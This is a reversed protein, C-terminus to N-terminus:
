CLETRAVVKEYVEVHGAVMRELTFKEEVRRRCTRRDIEGVRGMVEAIEKATSAILGSVGDEVIEPTAGASSGIVPVGCALAEITVIGFPEDFVSPVVLAKARRLFELKEEGRLYGVYEVSEGLEPEIARTWYDDATGGYHKGAIKLKVGTKKAAEVALHVGKPEIIRGLYAFYDGSEESFEYKDLDVGHYVNGVWNMEEPATRRQALSMSIYNLHQYRAFVSKYKILFNFPDHHTFVVPKECLGAFQLAIDEENTYIHVLDFEGANARQYVDSILEAQVQRAMGVFVMSHKKLLELYGYGRGELEKEFGSMDATANKVGCEVVGPTCLTVDVGKEELGQALDIALEGPSFIVRERVGDNVFIHPVVLAVRM